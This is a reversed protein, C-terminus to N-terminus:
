SQEHSGTSDWLLEKSNVQEALRARLRDANVGHHQERHCNPCLAATNYVTDAGDSSLLEVHHCELYPEGKLTRFPAKLNCQECIGKSRQM